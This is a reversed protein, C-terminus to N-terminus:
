ISDRGAPLNTREPSPNGSNIDADPWFARLPIPFRPDHQSSLAGLLAAVAVAVALSALDRCHWRSLGPRVKIQM